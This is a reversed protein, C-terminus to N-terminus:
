RSLSDCSIMIFDNKRGRKRNNLPSIQAAVSAHVPSSLPFSTHTSFYMAEHVHKIHCKKNKDKATWSGKGGGVSFPDLDAWIINMELTVM